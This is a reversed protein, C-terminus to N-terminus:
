LVIKRTNMPTRVIYIGSPADISVSGDGRAICIGDLSYVEIESGDAVTVTSGKITLGNDATVSGLSDKGTYSASINKVRYTYINTSFADEESCKLNSRLAIYFESDAETPTFRYTFTSFDRAKELECVKVFSGPHNRNGTWLSLAVDTNNVAMTYDISIEVERGKELTLAPSVLFGETMYHENPVIEFYPRVLTIVSPDTEDNAWTIFTQYPNYQEWSAFDKAFDANWPLQQHDTLPRIEIRDIQTNGKGSAGTANFGMYYLGSEPIEIRGLWKTYEPTEMTAGESKMLTLTMAAAEPKNGLSLSFDRPTEGDNRYFFSFDYEGKELAICESFAWDDSKAGSTNVHRLTYASIGDYYAFTGCYPYTSQSISWGSKADSNAFSWRNFKSTDNFDNLYPVSMNEFHNLSKGYRADNLRDNGVATVIQGILSYEGCASIDAAKKFTYEATQGPEITGQYTESAHATNGATYSLEIASQATLGQNAVVITVTSASLNFGDPSDFRVERVALDESDDIRFDSILVQDSGGTLHFAFYRNGSQPLDIAFGVSEWFDNNVDQEWLVETMRTPDPNDGTLLTLRTGGSIGAYYFSVRSKGAPMTVAPSVAYDDYSGYGAAYGLVSKNGSPAEATAFSWTYGDDGTDIIQWYGEGTFDATYPFSFPSYAFLDSKLENNSPDIDASYDVWVKIATNGAMDALLPASFTYNVAEGGKLTGNYTERIATADDGTSYCFVPNAVDTSSLNEFTAEVILPTGSPIKSEPRPSLLAVAALDAGSSKINIDEILLSGYCNGNGGTLIGELRLRAPGSAEFPMTVYVHEKGNGPLDITSADVFTGDKEIQLNITVDASANYFFTFAGNSGEPFDFPKASVLYRGPWKNKTSFIRFASYASQWQWDDYTTGSGVFDNMGTSSNWIYPFPLTEADAAGAKEPFLIGALTIAFILTAIKKM